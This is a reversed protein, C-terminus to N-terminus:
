IVQVDEYISSIKIKSRVAVILFTVNKRWKKSQSSELLSIRECDDIVRTIFVDVKRELNASRTTGAHFSVQLRTRVPASLWDQVVKLHAGRM